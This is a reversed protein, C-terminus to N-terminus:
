EEEGPAVPRPAEFSAGAYIVRIPAEGSRLLRLDAEDKIRAAAELSALAVDRLEGWGQEDVDLPMWSFHSDARADFTQQKLSEGAAVLFAEIMARTLETRKGLPLEAWDEDSYYIRGTPAFVHEISGRNPIEDVVVLSGVKELERFHYSVKHLDMGTRRSFAVPSLDGEAAMSLIRVRIPHLLATAIKQMPEREEAKTNSPM